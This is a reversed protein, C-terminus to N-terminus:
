KVGEFEGSFNADYVDGSDSMLIYLSKKERENLVSVIYYGRGKKSITVNKAPIAAWTKPLQGFGLGADRSSLNEAVELALTHAADESIPGHHHDSHAFVAQSAILSLTLLVFSVIKM